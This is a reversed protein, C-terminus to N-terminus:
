NADSRLSIAIRNLANMIAICATLDIVEKESFTSLLQEKLQPLDPNLDTLSEAWQLALREEKSFLSSSTWNSLADLKGQPIGAKVAEATHVRCCYACGNRESVRLEVLIRMSASLPSHGLSARSKYLLDFTEKSIKNYDM